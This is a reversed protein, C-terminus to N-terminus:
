RTTVHLHAASSGVRAFRMRPLLRVPPLVLVSRGSPSRRFNETLRFALLESAIEASSQGLTAALM